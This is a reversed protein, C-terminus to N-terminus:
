KKKNKQEELWEEYTMGHAIVPREGRSQLAAVCQDCLPGMNLEIQLDGEEFMEDCWRCEILEENDDM